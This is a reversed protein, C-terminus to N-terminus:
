ETRSAVLARREYHGSRSESISLIFSAVDTNQKEFTTPSLDSQPAGHSGSAHGERVELLRSAAPTSAGLPVPGVVRAVAASLLAVPALITRSGCWDRPRSASPSSAASSSSAAAASGFAGLALVGSFELREFSARPSNMGGIRATLKVLDPTGMNVLNAQGERGERELLFSAADGARSGHDRAAPLWGSSRLPCSTLVSSM